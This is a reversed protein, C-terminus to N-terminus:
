YARKQGRGIVGEDDVLLPNDFKWTGLLLARKSRREFKNIWKLVKSVDIDVCDLITIFSREKARNRWKEAARAIEAVSKSDALEDRCDNILTLTVAAWLRAEPTGQHM